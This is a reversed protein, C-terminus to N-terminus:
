SMWQLATWTVSTEWNLSVELAEDKPTSQHDFALGLNWLKPLSIPKSLSLFLESNPLASTAPANEM